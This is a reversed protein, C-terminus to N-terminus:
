RRRRSSWVAGAFLGLLTLWPSGGSTACGLGGGIAHAVPKPEFVTFSIPDSSPSPNGAVDTVIATLQHTQQELPEPFRFTWNGNEDAEALGRKDGLSLSVKGFRVATGSIPPTLDYVEAGDVPELIEPKSPPNVVVRWDYSAPEPDLNGAEDRARVSLTYEGNVDETDFLTALNYFQEKDCHEWERDVGDHRSIIKCEFTTNLDPPEGPANFTFLVLRSNHDRQPSNLIRTDPPATDVIFAVPESLEGRNGASDVARARVTHEGDALDKATELSWRGGVGAGTAEESALGDISIWVESQAESTGEFTPSVMNTRWIRPSPAAPNKVVTVPKTLDITWVRVAPTDDINGANDKAYVSFTHTGEALDTYSQSNGSSCPAADGSDLKCWYRDPSDAGSFSFTVGQANTPSRLNGGGESIETAATIATEPRTLDIVWTFAAASPDVNGAADIGYVSFSHTGESLGPYQTNSPDCEVYQQGDLSCMYRGDTGAGDFNFQANTSNTLLNPRSTIVTEPRTLDVVWDYRDPSLDSNGAADVAYVFFNYGGESLGTYTQSGSDCLAYTGVAGPTDLKCWYTGGAGAGGFRFTVSTINTPNRPKTAADITTDPATLDVEWSYSPPMLDVNGATDKARVSFTYTGDSLDTITTPNPCATYQGSNLSCEFTSGAETSTFSFTASSSNSPNTPSQTLATDPPTIDVKWSYSVTDGINNFRDVARVEFTHNGEAVTLYDKPSTCEVFPAGDLRCELRLVSGGGIDEASFTFHAVTANTPDVPKEGITTVPGQRDVTWSHSVAAGTNGATDVARVQFTHSGPAVTPYDKPSTCDEFPAGDLRCETKLVSGGGTDTAIFTFHATTEGTPNEPKEAIATVPNQRDVIWSYSIEAGTNGAVDTARVKFTHSGQGVSYDKPSTCGEFNAGDLSCEYRQPGSGGTDTASFTFHAMTENTLPAPKEGISAVPPNTDVKWLYSVAHQNGAVDVARVFFTHDGDLLGTYDKPSNCTAFAEADLKCEIGQVGSRADTASFTFNASMSRTPNTPKDVISAVPPVKDVFFQREASASGFVTDVSVHYHGDALAHEQPVQYSWAGNSATVAVNKIPSQNPNTDHLWITITIGVQDTTGTIIPRGTNLWAMDAPQTIAVAALTSTEDRSEAWVGDSQVGQFEAAVQIPADQMAAQMAVSIVYRGSRSPLVRTIEQGRAYVVVEADAPANGEVRVRGGDSSFYEVTPVAPVRFGGALRTPVGCGATVPAEVCRSQRSFAGAGGLDMSATGLAVPCAGSWSAQFLVQGGGGAGGMGARSELGLATGGGDGGQASIGGCEAAGAMRLYISGGAGGGSGGGMSNNQGPEGDARIFGQGVLRGGRIFVAGGGSGALSDAGDGGGHGPGGGGGLALRNILSFVLQSGGRGGGAQSGGWSFASDRGEEGSAGNGGGGGGALPGRSEGGGHPLPHSLGGRFGAGSASIEGANRLTGQALFALVGGMRGDWPAAVLSAGPRVTVDTYEPVRIVQTVSAAYSHLIPRRLKLLGGGAGDLRALEWQGVPSDSLDLPEGLQPEPLFGSTQLVMVLDGAAFGDTSTVTLVTDGPALPGTVQAYRNIVTRPEKIMLVGDRGTGLGFTDPGALATSACLVLAMLLGKNCQKRM